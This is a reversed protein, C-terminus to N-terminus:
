SGLAFMKFAFNQEECLSCVNGLVSLTNADEISVGALNNVIEMAAAMDGNKANSLALLAAVYYNNPELVIAKELCHDSMKHNGVQTLLRGAQLWSQINQPFKDTIHKSFNLAEQIKGLTELGTLQRYLDHYSPNPSM